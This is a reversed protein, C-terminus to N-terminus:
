IQIHSMRSNRLLHPSPFKTRRRSGLTRLHKSNIQKSSSLPPTRRSRQLIIPKSSNCRLSSMSARNQPHCRHLILLVLDKSRTPIHSHHHFMLLAVMTTHRSRPTLIHDTRPRPPLKKPPQCTQLMNDLVLHNSTRKKINSHIIDSKNSRRIAKSVQLATSIKIAQNRGRLKPRHALTTHIARDEIMNATRPRDSLNTALAWRHRHITRPM